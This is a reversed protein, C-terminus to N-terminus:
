ATIENFIQEAKQKASEADCYPFLINNMKQRKERGEYIYSVANEMYNNEAQLLLSCKQQIQKPASVFKETNIRHSPAFPLIHNEDTRIIAIGTQPLLIMQPIVRHFLDPVLIFEENEHILRDRIVGMIIASSFAANDELEIVTEYNEFVTDWQTHIGLPTVAALFKISPKGYKVGFPIKKLIRSLANIIRDDSLYDSLLSNRNEKCVNAYRLRLLAKKYFSKEGLFCDAIERKEGQTITRTESLSIQKECIGQSLPCIKSYGGDSIIFTDSNKIYIGNITEDYFPSYLTINYGQLKKQLAEFFIARDFDTGDNVIYISSEPHKSCLVKYYCLLGSSVLVSSYYREM